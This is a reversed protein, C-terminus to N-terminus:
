DTSGHETFKKLGDIVKIADYKTLSDLDTKGKCQRAIFGRLRDPNTDWGLAKVQTNIKWIQRTTANNKIPAPGAPKGQTGKLSACLTGLQSDTLKGLSVKDRKIGFHSAAIDRLDDHSYGNKNGLSHLARMAGQRNFTM